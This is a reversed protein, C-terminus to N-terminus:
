LADTYFVITREDDLLRCQASFERLSLKLNNQNIYWFNLAKRKADARNRGRFRIAEQESSPTNLDIVGISVGRPALAGAPITHM